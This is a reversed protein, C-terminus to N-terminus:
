GLAGVGRVAPWRVSPVAGSRIADAVREMAKASGVVDAALVLGVVAMVVGFGVLLGSGQSRLGLVGGRFGTALLLVV